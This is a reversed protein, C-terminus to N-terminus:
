SALRPTLPTPSTKPDPRGVRLVLLPYGVGSLLGRLRERAIDIEIVDSFPVVSLGLGTATIWASALAEGGRLWAAPDDTDAFLIVFSALDDGEDPDYSGGVDATGDFRPPLLYRSGHRPIASGPVGAANRRGGVWQTREADRSPDNRDLDRASQAALSLPLFDEQRVLHLHAAETEVAARLRELQWAAM